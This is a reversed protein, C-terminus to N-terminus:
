RWPSARGAWMLASRSPSPPAPLPASGVAGLQGGLASKGQRRYRRHRHAQAHHQREECAILTSLSSAEWLPRISQWDTAPTAPTASCNLHQLRTLAQLPRLEFVQTDSIDLHELRGLVALPGVDRLPDAVLMLVRLGALRTVPSVDTMRCNWVALRTLSPLTPLSDWDILQCDFCELGDLSSLAALPGLDRVSTRSLQLERLATLGSLPQLDTFQVGVLFLMQLGTLTALPALDLLTDSKFPCKVSLGTLHPLEALQPPLLTLDLDGLDLKGTRQEAEQAIRQLAQEDDETLTKRM